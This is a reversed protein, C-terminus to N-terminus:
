GRFRQRSIQAAIAPGLEDIGLARVRPSVALAATPMSSVACAAPAQVVCAAGREVVKAVGAAGDSGMGSLIVAVLREGLATASELLVTGSPCHGEFAPGVRSAVRQTGDLVLHGLSTAVLARGVELADSGSAPRAPVGLSTVWEAFSAERGPPMHQVILTSAEAGALSPLLRRLAVMAGTSGVIAVVPQLWVPRERVASRVVARLRAVGGDTALEAKAFVAAAGQAVAERALPSGDPIDSVVVVPRDRALERIVGLGNRGPLWMDLMIVDAVLRQRSRMLEEVSVFRAVVHIDPTAELARALLQAAVDSDETIVVHIRRM